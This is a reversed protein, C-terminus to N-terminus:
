SYRLVPKLTPGDGEEAQLMQFLLRTAHHVRRLRQTAHEM